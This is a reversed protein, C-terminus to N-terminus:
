TSVDVLERLLMVLPKYNNVVRMIIAAHVRVRVFVFSCSRVCGFSCVRVCEFVCVRVCVFVSLCVCSCVRVCVSLISCVTATYEILESFLFDRAPSFHM